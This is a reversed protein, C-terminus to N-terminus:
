LYSVDHVFVDSRDEIEANKIISFLVGLVVMSMVLSSGGYSFFPLTTGKPPLIKVVVGTHLFVQTGFYVGIGFALYKGFTDKIKNSFWLATMIITLFLFLIFCAGIFGTEECLVAFVYDKHAEPLFELKQRGRGLGVGFIGGSGVSILAQIVSYGIGLPDREPWLFAIIRKWRYPEFHILYWVAPICSLFMGAIVKWNIGAVILFAMLYSFVIMTSGFDPEAILLLMIIGCVIIPIFFEKRSKERQSFRSFFDALYIVIAFKALESAQFGFGKFGISRKAGKVETGVFLTMVLLIISFIILWKGIKKLNSYHLNQLYFFLFLGVVFFICHRKFYFFADKTTQLAYPASASLVMACGGVLLIASAILCRYYIKLRTRSSM